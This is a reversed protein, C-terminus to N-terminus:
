MFMSIQESLLVLRFAAITDTVSLRTLIDSTLVETREYCRFLANVFIECYEYVKLIFEIKCSVIESEIDM